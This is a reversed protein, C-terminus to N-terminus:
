PLAKSYGASFHLCAFDVGGEGKGVTREDKTSVRLDSTRRRDGYQERATRQAGRGALLSVSFDGVPM